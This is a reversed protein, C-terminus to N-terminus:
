EEWEDAERRQRQLDAWSPLQAREAEIQQQAREQEARVEQRAARVKDRLKAEADLLDRQAQAQSELQRGREVRRGGTFAAWIVGLLAVLGAGLAAAWTM